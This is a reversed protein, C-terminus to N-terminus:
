KMTDRKYTRFRKTLSKHTNNLHEKMSKRKIKLKRLQQVKYIKWLHNLIRSKKSSDTLKILKYLFLTKVQKLFNNKPLYAKDCVNFLQSTKFLAQLLCIDM